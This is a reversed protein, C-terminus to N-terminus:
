IQYMDRADASIKGERYLKDLSDSMTYMGDSRSTQICSKLLHFKNGRIIARVADTATVYETALYLRDGNVGPVLQQSLVALLNMGLQARIQDQQSSPFVDVIRTLSNVTGRTHSTAIVLHGTEAARLAAEVSERDRIEGIVVIDPDERLAENIAAGFSATDMGVERQTVVCNINSHIFEVPDEIMIIHGSRTNNIYNVIATLTTSKGSGTPGTILILGGSRASLEKLQKPVALEDLPVATINLLRLAINLGNLDKYANGRLRVGCIGVAFDAAFAGLIFKEVDVNTYKVLFDRILESTIEEAEDIVYIKGARRFFPKSGSKLHLDSAGLGNAYSVYTEIICSDSILNEDM